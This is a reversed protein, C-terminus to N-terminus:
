TNPTAAQHPLCPRGGPPTPALPVLRPRLPGPPSLRDDEAAWEIRLKVLKGAYDGPAVTLRFTDCSVGEVCDAEHANAGTGTATGTWTGPFPTVPGTQAITGSPPNAAEATRIARLRPSLFLLAAAVCAVSALLLLARVRRRGSGNGGGRNKLGAGM